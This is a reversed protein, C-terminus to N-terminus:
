GKPYKDKTVKIVAKWSDIGNHYIEDLQDPISPFETVRNRAYEQADFDSQQKALADTLSKETPKTKTDDHIVLNAYVKNKSDSWGFWQGVHLRILVDEIHEFRGDLDM